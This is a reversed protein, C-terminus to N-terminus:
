VSRCIRKTKDPESAKVEEVDTKEAEAPLRVFDTTKSMRDGLVWGLEM